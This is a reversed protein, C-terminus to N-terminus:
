SSPPGPVLGSPAPFGAGEARQAETAGSADPAVPPAEEIARAVMERHAEIVQLGAADVSLRGYRVDEYARTLAALSPACQPYARTSEHLFEGPTLQAERVVGRRELDLLTEAYWRRVADEPLERRRRGARRRRRRRRRGAAPDGRLISRADGPMSRWMRRRRVILWALFAIFLALTALGILRQWVPTVLEGNRVGRGLDSLNRAITRLGGVLGSIDFGIRGLAWGVPQLIHLVIFTMGSLVWTIALPVIAGVAALAGGQRGLFGAVVLLVGGAIALAAFLRLWRVTDGVGGTSESLRVSAARSALSALFFQPVIVALMDSWGAQGATAIEVLVVGAGWGFSATIPDRWDRLALTVVRSGVALALTVAILVGGAGGEGWRLGQFAGLAAFAAVTAPAFWRLRRFATGLAVAAVFIAVFVPFATLPGGSAALASREAIFSVPLFIIASEAIAALAAAPVSARAVRDEGARSAPGAPAAPDNM